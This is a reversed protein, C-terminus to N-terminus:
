GKKKERLEEEVLVETLLPVGMTIAYMGLVSTLELVEMVEGPTARAALTAAAHARMGPQLLHMVSADIDLLLLEWIKPPLHQKVLPAFRM